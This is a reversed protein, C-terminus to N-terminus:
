SLLSLRGGSFAVSGVDQAVSVPLSVYVCV